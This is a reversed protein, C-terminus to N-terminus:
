WPLNVACRTDATPLRRPPLQRSRHAATREKAAEGHCVDTWLTCSRTATTHAANVSQVLGATHSVQARPPRPHAPLVRQATARAGAGAQTVRESARNRRASQVHQPHVRRAGLQLGIFVGGGLCSRLHRQMAQLRAGCNHDTAHALQQAPDQFHCRTRCHEYQQVTSELGLRHHKCQLPKRWACARAPPLETQQGNTASRHPSLIECGALLVPLPPPQAGARGKSAGCGGICQQYASCPSATSPTTSLGTQAVLLVVPKKSVWLSAGAKFM